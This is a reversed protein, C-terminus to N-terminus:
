KKNRIEFANFVLFCTVGFIIHGAFLQTYYERSRNRPPRPHIKLGTDWSIIAPIGSAAGAIFGNKLSSRMGTKNILLKYVGAFAVGILYHSLWGTFESQSKSMDMSRYAMIGLLDPEKYNKHERKSVLYSFVTFATTGLVGAALTDIIKM